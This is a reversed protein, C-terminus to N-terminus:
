RPLRIGDGAIDDLAPPAMGSELVLGKVLESRVNEKSYGSRLVEEIMRRLESYAANLATQTIPASLRQCREGLFNYCVSRLGRSYFPAPAVPGVLYVVGGIIPLVNVTDQSLTLPTLFQVKVPQAPTGFSGEKGETYAQLNLGGKDRVVIASKANDRDISLSTLLDTKLTVNRGILGLGALLPTQQSGLGSSEGILLSPARLGTGAERSHM